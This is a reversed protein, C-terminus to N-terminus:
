GDETEIEEPNAGVYECPSTDARDAGLDDPSATPRLALRPRGALPRNHKPRPMFQIIEASM